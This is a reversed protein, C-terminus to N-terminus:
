ALGILARRQLKIFSHKSRFPREKRQAATFRNSVEAMAEGDMQGKPISSSCPMQGQMINMYIHRRCLVRQTQLGHRYYNVAQNCELRFCAGERCVPWKQGRKEWTKQREQSMKLYLSKRVEAPTSQLGAEGPSSPCQQEM